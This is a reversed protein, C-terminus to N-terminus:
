KSTDVGLAALAARCQEVSEFSIVRMGLAAAPPLNEEFDDIFVIEAAARGLQAVVLEYIRPDPKRFGVASSDVITDFLEHPLQERWIGAEAVNNTLLGIAFRGHLSRVLDVADPRLHSAEETTAALARLDIRVGHAEQVRTGVSKWFDRASIEGRELSHYVPDNRFYQTISGAPLSVSEEYETMGDFPPGTLVGGLDFVVATIASPAGTV